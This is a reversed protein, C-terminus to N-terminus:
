VPPDAPPDQKIKRLQEHHVLGLCTAAFGLWVMLAEIFFAPTTYNITIYVAVLISAFASLKRASWGKSYTDLSSLLKNWM